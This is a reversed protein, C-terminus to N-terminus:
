IWVLAGLIWFGDFGMTLWLSHFLLEVGTPSPNGWGFWGSKDVLKCLRCLGSLSTRTFLMWISFIDLRTSWSSWLLDFFRWISAWIMEWTTWHLRASVKSLSFSTWLSTQGWSTPGLSKSRWISHAVTIQQCTNSPFYRATLSNSWWQHNCHQDGQYVSGKHVLPCLTKLNLKPQPSWELAWSSGRWRFWVTQIVVFHLTRWNLNAHQEDFGIQFPSTM